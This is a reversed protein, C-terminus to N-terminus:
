IKQNRFRARTRNSETEESQKKIAYKLSQRKGRKRTLKVLRFAKIRQILPYSIVNAKKQVNGIKKLEDHFNKKLLSGPHSITKKLIGTPGRITVQARKGNMRVNWAEEENTGILQGLYDSIIKQFRNDKM